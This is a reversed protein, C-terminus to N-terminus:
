PIVNFGADRYHNDFAFVSRIKRERMIEFSICDVLSLRRRAATLLAAVGLCIFKRPLSSSRFCRSLVTRFSM